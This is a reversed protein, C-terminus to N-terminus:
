WFFTSPYKKELDDEQFFRDLRLLNSIGLKKPGSTGSIGKASRGKQTPLRTKMTPTKNLSSVNLRQFPGLNQRKYVILSLHGILHAFPIYMVGM